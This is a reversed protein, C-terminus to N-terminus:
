GRASMKGNYGRAVHVLVLYMEQLDERRPAPGHVGVYPCGLRVIRRFEHGNLTSQSLKLRSSRRPARSREHGGLVDGLDFGPDKM